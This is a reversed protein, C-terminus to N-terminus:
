IDVRSKKIPKSILSLWDKKMFWKFLLLLTINVIITSNYFQNDCIMFLTVMGIYSYLIMSLTDKKRQLRYYLFMSLSTFFLMFGILGYSGFDMYPKQMFSLINVWNYTDMKSLDLTEDPLFHKTIFHFTGTLLVRGDRFDNTKNFYIVMNNFAHLETSLNVWIPMLQPPLEMTPKFEEYSSSNISDPTLDQSIPQPTSYIDSYYDAGSEVKSDNTVAYYKDQTYIQARILPITTMLFAVSSFILFGTIFTSRRDNKNFYFYITIYFLSTFIPIFINTRGGLLVLMLLFITSFIMYGYKKTHTVYISNFIILYIPMVLINMLYNSIVNPMINARANDNFLPISGIKNFAYCYLAIEVIIGIINSAFLTRSSIEYNGHKNKTINKKKNSLIFGICVTYFTIIVASIALWTDYSFDNQEIATLKAQSCGIMFLFMSMFISAPNYFNRFLYTFVVFNAIAAIAFGKSVWNVPLILIFILGILGLLGPSHKGLIGNKM